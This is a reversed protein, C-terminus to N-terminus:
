PRVTRQSLITSLLFWISKLKPFQIMLEIKNNQISLREPILSVHQLLKLLELPTLTLSNYKKLVPPNQYLHLWQPLLLPNLYGTM